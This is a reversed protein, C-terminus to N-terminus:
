KAMRAKRCAEKYALPIDPSIEALQCDYGVHKPMNNLVMYGIGWILILVVMGGMIKEKM